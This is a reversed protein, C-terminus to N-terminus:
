SMLPLVAALAKDIKYLGLPCAHHHTIFAAEYSWIQKRFTFGVWFVVTDNEKKLPQLNLQSKPLSKWRAKCITDLSSSSSSVPIDFLEEYWVCVCMGIRIHQSSLSIVNILVTRRWGSSLLVYESPIQARRLFDSCFTKNSFPLLSDIWIVSVRKTGMICLANQQAGPITILIVPLWAIM